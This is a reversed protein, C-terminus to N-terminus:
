WWSTDVGVREQDFLKPVKKLKPYDKKFQTELSAWINNRSYGSLEKAGFLVMTGILMAKACVEPKQEWREELSLKPGEKTDEWKDFLRKELIAVCHM